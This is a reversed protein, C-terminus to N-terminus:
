YLFLLNSFLLVFFIIMLVYFAVELIVSILAGKGVSLARKPYEQKWALYLILGILPFFFGLVAFGFSSADPQKVVPAAQSQLYYNDTLCGCHPCTIADNRIEKGCKVCFM